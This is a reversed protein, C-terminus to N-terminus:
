VTEESSYDIITEYDAGSYVTFETKLRYTGGSSLSGKTNTVSGRYNYVTEEWHAGNVSSWGGFYNLKQLTQEFEIKTTSNIYGKAESKCTATSGSIYLETSCWDTYSFLPTVDPPIYAASVTGFLINSSSLVVAAAISLVKKVM